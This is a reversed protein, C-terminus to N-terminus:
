GGLRFSLGIGQSYYRCPLLVFCFLPYILELRFRIDISGSLVITEDPISYIYDGNRVM